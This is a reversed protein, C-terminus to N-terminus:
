DRALGSRALRQCADNGKADPGSQSLLRDIESAPFEGNWSFPGATVQLLVFERSLSPRIEWTGAVNDRSGIPQEAANRLPAESSRNRSM